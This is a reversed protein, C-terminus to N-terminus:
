VEQLRSEPFAFKKNSGMNPYTGIVVRDDKSCWLENHEYVTKGTEEVVYEDARKNTVDIIQVTNAEPSPTPEDKDLAYDGESFKHKKNPMSLISVCIDKFRNSQFISSKPEYWFGTSLM